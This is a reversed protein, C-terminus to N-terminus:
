RPDGTLRRADSCVVKGCQTCCWRSYVGPVLEGWLTFGQTRVREKTWRHWGAKCCLPRRWWRLLFYTAYHAVWDFLTMPTVCEPGDDESM